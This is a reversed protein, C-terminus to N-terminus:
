PIRPQRDRRVDKLPRAGRGALAPEAGLRALAIHRASEMHPFLLFWEQGPSTKDKHVVDMRGACGQLRACPNKFAAAGFIHGRDRQRANNFGHVRKFLPRIRIFREGRGVSM